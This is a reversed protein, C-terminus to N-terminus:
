FRFRAAFQFARAGGSGFVGGASSVQKGFASSHLYGAKTPDNSDRVLTNQYGSYNLNSNGLINKTNFINFVEGLVEFVYREGFHFDRSLRFDLSNFSRNFRASDDVLSLLVASGGGPTSVGGSANTQRIFANLERASHFSRGGANRQLTPVRESADPLLIDMPVGSAMTWIPSFRFSYPLSATGSIVLRHRQDNPPPGYERHLDNPDIPSYSFPIQDDNAYNYAKAWTYAVDVEGRGYTKRLVAWLGDYKTNVSSELNTVVDPGGTDPNIVSGVPRGIIFRTGLNHIGDIKFVFNRAIEQEIGLNFQQVMPNRLRNDIIDIGTNGAGVLLFGSFPSALL